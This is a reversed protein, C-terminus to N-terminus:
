QNVTGVALRLLGPSETTFPTGYQAITIGTSWDGLPDDGPRKVCRDDDDEFAELTFRHRGISIGTSARSEIDTSLVILACAARYHLATVAGCSRYGDNVSGFVEIENLGMLLGESRENLQILFVETRRSFHKVGSQRLIVSTGSHAPSFRSLVAGAHWPCCRPRQVPGHGLVSGRM